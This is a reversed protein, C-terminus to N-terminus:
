EKYIRSQGASRLIMYAEAIVYAFVPAMFFILAVSLIQYLPDRPFMSMPLVFLLILAAFM